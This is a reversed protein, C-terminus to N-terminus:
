HVAAGPPPARPGHAKPGPARTSQPGPARGSTPHGQNKLCAAGRPAGCRITQLVPGPTPVRNMYIHIPKPRLQRAAIARSASWVGNGRLSLCTSNTSVAAHSSIVKIPKEQKPPREEEATPVNKNNQSAKRTKPKKYTKVYKSTNQHIKTSKSAVGVLFSVM